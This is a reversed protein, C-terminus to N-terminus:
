NGGSINIRRTQNTNTITKNTTMDTNSLYKAIESRKANHGLTEYVLKGNNIVVIRSSIALIEDLEYSILLIATGKKADDLIKQHIYNIAGLDLGRTPQVIIAINHKRSLERGIVLKQQNGGSLARALAKGNDAGRVDWVSIISKAYKNIQRNDIFGFRTFPYHDIEPLVTNIATTEDLVLGYKLRDEPVHCLGNSYLKSVTNNLVDIKQNTEMNYIYVEGTVKQKLLGGLILSLETQGNGEIGVLGVIEGQHITLSFDNLANVKPQSIKPVTVNKIECAVPRKKYDQDKNKNKILVLKHGVIDNALKTENTNTKKITKVLCGKRIITINDAVKMVENLKHTILVITKGQKKFELLMKLFGEIEQDSLVATPEDFILIDADRYLLKLIETRQQQGVSADISKTDLNIDLNYQRALKEIKERASKRDIFGHKTMESGLIINDLLTYVNVLKFHQHVMGIGNAKITDATINDCKIGNIIVKGSDCPYVGFLISMLTTKGAGNEGVIAHIENKEVKITLNDNAILKGNNFTKTINLMEVAYKTENANYLSISKENYNKKKKKFLM